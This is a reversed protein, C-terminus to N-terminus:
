QHSHGRHVVRRCGSCVFQHCTTCWLDTREHQGHDVCSLTDMAQQPDAIGAQSPGNRSSEHGPSVAHDSTARSGSAVAQGASSGLAVTTHGRTMKTRSHAKHHLDCLHVNCESCKAVAVSAFAGDAEDGEGDETDCLDCCVSGQKPEEEKRFTQLLYVLKNVLFNTALGRVGNSPVSVELRCEPCLLVSKHTQAQLITELCERCFTHQCPLVKPEKYCELCVSCLLVMDDIQAALGAAQQASLGAGVGDTEEHDEGDVAAEAVGGLEASTATTPAPDAEANDPSVTRHAIARKLEASLESARLMASVDGVSGSRQRGYRSAVGDMLGGSLRKKMAEPVSSPVKPQRPKEEEDGSHELPASSTSLARRSSKAAATQGGVSGGESAM